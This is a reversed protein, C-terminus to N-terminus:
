NQDDQGSKTRADVLSRHVSHPNEHIAPGLGAVVTLIILQCRLVLRWYQPRQQHTAARQM